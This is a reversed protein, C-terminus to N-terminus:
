LAKQLHVPTPATTLNAALAGLVRTQSNAIWSPKSTLTFNPFRGAFAPLARRMLLRALSAGLCRHLGHGLALHGAGRGANVQDLHLQMTDGSAFRVDGIEGDIRATRYIFRPSAANPLVDRDLWGANSPELFEVRRDPAIDALWWLANGLTYAINFSAGYLVLVLAHCDDQDFGEPAQAILKALLSPPLDPRPQGQGVSTLDLLETCVGQLRVINRLSLLPELLEQLKPAIADFRAPDAPHLGLVRQTVARFLPECFDRILDAQGSPPLADLLREVTEDIFPTWAPLRNNGLLDLTLLRIAQHREGSLFFPANRAIRIAVSLDKGSAAQLSRLHETMDPPGFLTDDAAIRRALDHDGIEWMKASRRRLGTGTCPLTVPSRVMTTREVRVGSEDLRLAPFRGALAPVAIRYILRALEAGPCRHAGEGFSLQRQPQLATAANISRVDIAAIDGSHVPCGMVQADRDAVRYLMLTSSHERFLSDLELDSWELDAAARWATSGRRLIGALALGLSEAATHAAVILSITLAEASVDDPLASGALVDRLPAPGDDFAFAGAPQLLDSLFQFGAQAARLRRIPLLPETLERTAAISDLVGREDGARLGTIRGICAVFVPDVFDRVLDPAGSSALRDMARRVEEEIVGRWQEVGSIGFFKAIARRTRLHDKGSQYILSSRAIAILLSFDEGTEAQLRAIHSGLDIVTWSRDRLVASAAAGDDIRWLAPSRGRRPASQENTQRM